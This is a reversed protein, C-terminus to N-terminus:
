EKIDTEILKRITDLYKEMGFMEAREKAAKQYTQYLAEDLVLSKLAKAFREEEQTFHTADMDKGGQFIGTLIGYDAHVTQNEDNCQAYDAHLIEAPGTLCNASICPLGVAMAEILANPFGESESTLAYIDARKLLAFPNTQVGTFLVDERMGLQEALMKYETYEGAGIIMLRLDPISKKALFVVKILHWFGKVDHERGMSVVIKGSKAFFNEFEKPIEEDALTKIQAIDCPNYVAASKKPRFQRQIQEEMVKTCSIVRDSLKCIRKMAAKNQVAGFGRIGTWIVDKEKTLINVLNATPGFSYSLQIRFKKKLKRVRKVRRFVNCLKGIKGPVAGLNLDILSVGSVDYIMGATNFVVLHVEYEKKLLQATTACVRELGGQDLMPVLLMVRKKEKEM